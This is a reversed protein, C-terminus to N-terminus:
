KGDIVVREVKQILLPGGGEGVIEKRETERWGAQTKLYFMMCATDGSRAKTILSDAIDRIVKAKGSKYRESIEPDRDIMEFWTTKGIGFYDAIQEQSLACALAEVQSKQDNTLTKPPRGRKKKEM